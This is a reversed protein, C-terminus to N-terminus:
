QTVETKLINEEESLFTDIIRLNLCKSCMNGGYARAVTRRSKPLRRLATPRGVAIGHLQIKCEVCKAVCGPKPKRVYVLKNGPTRKIIKQNSRTNYTRRGRHTLRESM